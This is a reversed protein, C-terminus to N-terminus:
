RCVIYIPNGILLPHGARDVANASIWGCAANRGLTLTAEPRAATVSAEAGDVPKGNAILRVVADDLGATKVAVRIEAGAPRLTARASTVPRGCIVDM